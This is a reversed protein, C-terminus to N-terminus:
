ACEAQVFIFMGNYWQCLVKKGSAIATAGSKMMVDQVTVDWDTIDTAIIGAYVSVAVSGGPSLSGNLKGMFSNIPQQVAFTVSKDTNNYGQCTFGVPYNKNIKWSGPKVGWGEDVAPTGGEYAVM